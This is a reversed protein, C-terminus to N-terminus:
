FIKVEEELQNEDKTKCADHEMSPVEFSTLEVVNEDLDIENVIFDSASQKILGRFRAYQKNAREKLGYLGELEDLKAFTDEEDENNELESNNEYDNEDELKIRKANPNLDLQEASENTTESM